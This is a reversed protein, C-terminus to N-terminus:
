KTEELKRLAGAIMSTDSSADELLKKAQELAKSLKSDGGRVCVAGDALVSVKNNSISVHGWNIAVLDHGSESRIDIVGTQLLALMDCHGPLVGFEGEKGPLYVSNVKGNFIEGYPTVIDLQFDQM